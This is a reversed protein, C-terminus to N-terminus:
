HVAGDMAQQRVAERMESVGVEDVVVGGGSVGRDLGGARGHEFDREVQTERDFIGVSCARYVLGCGSKAAGCLQAM